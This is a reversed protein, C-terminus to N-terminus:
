NGSNGPAYYGHRYSANLKKPFGMPPMIDVRVSRWAGDRNPDTPFYGLTYQERLDRAIKEMMLRAQEVNEPFYARGGSSEAVRILSQEAKLGGAESLLGVSFVSIHNRKLAEVVDDLTSKSSNDEGDTILLLAKKEHKAADMHEIATMLADYIATQGFPKTAALTQQLDSLKTTFDQSLRVEDDFHVIFAEDEPNSQQVFSLAAADLRQKRPEISRSNDIVLGLSVPIDEHKFVAIPQEVRNEFIKFHDKALGGVTREKDDLVSVHIQVLDVNVNLTFPRQKGEQALLPTALLLSGFCLKLLKM